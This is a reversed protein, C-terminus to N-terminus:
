NSQLYQSARVLLPGRTSPDAADLARRLAARDVNNGTLYDIAALRLQVSRERTLLGLALREVAADGRHRALEAFAKLRVVADPDDEASAVLAARVREDLVRDAVAIAQLRGALPSAGALLTQAVVEGVLPDNAPRELVLHTSADFELRLRGGTGPEVSVNAYTFPSELPERAATRTAAVRLLERGLPDRLTAGRGATARGVAVGVVLLAAAAAGALALRPWGLARWGARPSAAELRAQRVVGRRVEALAALPPEAASALAQLARDAALLERCDGCARCHDDVLTRDGETAEGLVLRELAPQIADCPSM